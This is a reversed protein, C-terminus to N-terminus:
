LDFSNATLPQSNTTYGVVSFLYGMVSLRIHLFGRRRRPM